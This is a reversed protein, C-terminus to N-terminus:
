AINSESQRGIELIRHSSKVKSSIGRSTVEDNAVIIRGLSNAVDVESNVDIFIADDHQFVLRGVASRNVAEQQAALLLLIALVVSVSELLSGDYM